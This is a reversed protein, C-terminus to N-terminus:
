LDPYTNRKEIEIIKSNINHSYMVTNSDQFLNQKTLVRAIISLKNSMKARTTVRLYSVSIPFTLLNHFVKFNIQPYKLGNSSDSFYSKGFKRSDKRLESWYCFM